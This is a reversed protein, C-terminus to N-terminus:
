TSDSTDSYHIAASDCKGNVIQSKLKRRHRWNQLVKGNQNNPLIKSINRRSPSTESEGRVNYKIVVCDSSSDESFEELKRKLYERRKQLATVSADSECKYPRSCSSDDSSDDERRRARVKTEPRVREDSSSSSWSDSQSVHEKYRQEHDMYLSGNRHRPTGSSESSTSSQPAFPLRRTKDRRVTVNRM